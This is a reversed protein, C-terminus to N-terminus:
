AAVARSEAIVARIARRDGAAQRYRRALAQNALFNADEPRRAARRHWLHWAVGPLRAFGGFTECAVAFARDEFGWGRFREDFGGVDDWLARPVAVASSVPGHIGQGRLTEVALPAWSGNFGALVRESGRPSLSRYVDFAVVMRGTAAAKAAAAHGQAPNIHTDADLLIAVDWDGAQRAARNLAIARSFPGGEHHGEVVPYDWTAIQGRLWNWVRDRQPDGERRPVLVVIKV